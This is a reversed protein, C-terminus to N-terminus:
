QYFLTLFLGLSKQFVANTSDNTLIQSGLIWSGQRVGAVRLAKEEEGKGGVCFLCRNVFGL